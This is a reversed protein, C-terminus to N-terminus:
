RKKFPLDIWKADALGHQRLYERQRDEDLMEPLLRWATRAQGRVGQTPFGETEERQTWFEGPRAYLQTSGISFEGGSICRNDGAQIRLILAFLTANGERQPIELSCLCAADIGAADRLLLPIFAGPASLEGAGAHVLERAPALRALVKDIGTGPEIAIAQKHFEAENAYVRALQVSVGDIVADPQADVIVPLASVGLYQEGLWVHAGEPAVFVFSKAYRDDLVRVFIADRLDGWAAMLIAFALALVLFCAFGTRLVRLAPPMPQTAPETM